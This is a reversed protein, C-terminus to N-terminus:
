MRRVHKGPLSCACVLLCPTLSVRILARSDKRTNIGISSIHLFWCIRIILDVLMGIDYSSWVGAHGGNFDQLLKHRHHTLIYDPLFFSFFQQM